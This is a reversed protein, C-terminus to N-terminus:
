SFVINNWWQKAPVAFHVVAQVSQLEGNKVELQLADNCDGCTTHIAADARIMAPIGLADWVCMANWRREGSEVVFPTPVSAFPNAAM